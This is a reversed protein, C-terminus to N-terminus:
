VRSQQMRHLHAIVQEIRASAMRYWFAKRALIEAQQDVSSCGLAHARNANTHQGGSRERTLLSTMGNRDGAYLGNGRAWVVTRIDLTGSRQRKQDLCPIGTVQDFGGHAEGPVFGIQRSSQHTYRAHFMELLGNGRLRPTSQWRCGQFAQGLGPRLKGRGLPGTM